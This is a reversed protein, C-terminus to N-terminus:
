RLSLAEQLVAAIQIRSKCNLLHSKLYRQAHQNDPEINFTLGAHGKDHIRVVTRSGGLAYEYQIYDAGEEIVKLPSVRLASMLSSADSARLLVTEITSEDCNQPMKIHSSKMMKNVYNGVQEEMRKVEKTCSFIEEDLQELKKANACLADNIANKTVTLKDIEQKQSVLCGSQGAADKGLFTCTSKVTDTVDELFMITEVAERQLEELLAALDAEQGSDRNQSMLCEYAKTLEVGDEHESPQVLKIVDDIAELLSRPRYLVSPTHLVQM